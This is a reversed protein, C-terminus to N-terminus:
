ILFARTHVLAMKANKLPIGIADMSLLWKQSIEKFSSIHVHNVNLLPLQLWFVISRFEFVETSDSTISWHLPFGSPSAKHDVDLVSERM